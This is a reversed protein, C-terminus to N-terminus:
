GAFILFTIFQLLLFWGVILSLFTFPYVRMRFAYEDQRAQVENIEEPKAIFLYLLVMLFNVLMSHLLWVLWLVFKGPLFYTKRSRRQWVDARAGLWIVFQLFSGIFRGSVRGDRQNLNPGVVSVLGRLLHSELQEVFDSDQKNLYKFHSTQDDASNDGDYIVLVKIQQSIFKDNTKLYEIVERGSYKPLTTDIVIINPVTVLTYGIGEVGDAASYIHPNFGVWDIIRHILLKLSQRVAFNDDLIAISINSVQQSAM